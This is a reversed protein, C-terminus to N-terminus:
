RSDLSWSVFVGDGTTPIMQPEPREPSDAVKVLVSVIWYLSM